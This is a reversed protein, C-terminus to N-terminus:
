FIHTITDLIFSFFVLPIFSFTLTPLFSPLFHAVLAYDIQTPTQITEKRFEGVKIEEKKDKKYGTQRSRKVEESEEIDKGEAYGTQPEKM